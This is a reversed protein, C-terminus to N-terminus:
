LEDYVDKMALDATKYIKVKEKQGSQRSLKEIIVPIQKKCYGDNWSLLDCLGKLTERKKNKILNLKRFIFRKVIRYYQVHRNPNM